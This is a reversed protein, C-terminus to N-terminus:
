LTIRYILDNLAPTSDDLLVVQVETTGGPLEDTLFEGLADSTTETLLAGTVRDYVRVTVAVPNGLADLVSGTTGTTVVISAAVPAGPIFLAFQPESSSATLTVTTAMSGTVANVCALEWPVTPYASAGSTLAMEVMSGDGSFGFAYVAKLGSPDYTSHPVVLCAWSSTNYILLETEANAALRSGDASLALKYSRYTGAPQVAPTSVAWTATSYVKVKSAHDALLSYLGLVCLSGDPSFEIQGVLWESGSLSDALTIPAWTTTDYVAFGGSDSQMALKTGDPSFKIANVWGTYVPTGSVLAGTSTNYIRLSNEVELYDYASIALMFGDPSLDLQWGKTTAPLTFVVKTLAVLNYIMVTGGYEEEVSFALRSGDKSLAATLGYGVWALYDSDAGIWALDSLASGDVLSNLQLTGISAEGAWYENGVRILKGDSM